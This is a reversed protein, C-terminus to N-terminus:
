TPVWDEKYGVFVLTMSYNHYTTTKRFAMIRQISPSTLYVKYNNSDITMLLEEGINAILFDFLVNNSECNKVFGLNLTFQAENPWDATAFRTQQGVSKRVVREHTIFHVDGFDVFKVTHIDSGKSLTLYSM